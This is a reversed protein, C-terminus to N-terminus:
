IVGSELGRRILYAVNNANLKKLLHKRHTRVTELSIYLNHAIDKSSYGFSILSLIEQERISLDPNCKNIKVSYM